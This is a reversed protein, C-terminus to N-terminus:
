QIWQQQVVGVGGRRGEKNQLSTVTNGTTRDEWQCEEREWPCRDEWQWEEREWPGRDEWKREWPGRGEWGRIEIM